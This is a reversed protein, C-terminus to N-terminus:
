AEISCLAEVGSMLSKTSLFNEHEKKNGEVSIIIMKYANINCNLILIRVM